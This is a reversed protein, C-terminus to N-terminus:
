KINPPQANKTRISIGEDAILFVRRFDYSSTNVPFYSLLYRNRRLEDCISKAATQADDFQFIAGGTGETLKEVVAAAKPADRRFAGRTRDPLQLSYVTVNYNQLDALVNDFSAASGRDLGDGILVVATKRTGPMLPLLIENVTANLADFLYPNGKKRFTSLSKEIKKADDTWEQIIEAKEDYAVVFLQDGDFIEYAFEMTAKKLKEVDAPLTQSNDVLIVIKSPSPDYSFGKIKQEVGNEYLFMNEAKLPDTKKDTRWATVSLVSGETDTTKISRRSQAQMQACVIVICILSAISRAAFTIM